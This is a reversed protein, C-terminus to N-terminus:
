IWAMFNHVFFVPTSVVECEDTSPDPPEEEEVTSAASFPNKRKDIMHAYPQLFKPIQRHYTVSSQARSPGGASGGGRFSKAPVFDSKDQSQGYEGYQDNLPEAGSRGRRKGM